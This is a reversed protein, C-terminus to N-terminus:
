NKIQMINKSRKNKRKKRKKKKDTTDITIINKHKFKKRKRQKTSKKVRKLTKKKGEISIVDLGDDDSGLDSESHIVDFISDDSDISNDTLEVNDRVVFNSLSDREYVECTINKRKSRKSRSSKEQVRKFIGATPNNSVINFTRVCYDCFWDDEPIFHLPPDLCFIHCCKKDCKNCILMVNENGSSECKYCNSDANMVIIDLENLEEEIILNKEEIFESKVFCKGIFIRLLKSKIKCMPCANTEKTWNQICSKCYEHNCDLIGREKSILEMCIVCDRSDDKIPPERDPPQNELIHYRKNIVRRFIEKNHAIQCEDM